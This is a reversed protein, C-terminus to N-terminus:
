CEATKVALWQWGAVEGAFPHEIRDLRRTSLM